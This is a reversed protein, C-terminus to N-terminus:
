THRIRPATKDLREDGSRNGCFVCGTAFKDESYLGCFQCNGCLLCIALPKPFPSLCYKCKETLVRRVQFDTIADPEEMLGTGFALRAELDGDKDKKPKKDFPTIKRAPRAKLKKDDILGGRPNHLSSRGEM